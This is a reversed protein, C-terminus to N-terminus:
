ADVARASAASYGAQTHSTSGLYKVKMEDGTLLDSGHAAFEVSVSILDGVEIVPVTLHARPMNFEVGPATFDDSGMADGDSGVAGSVGMYLRADFVNTVLDTAAALDLYFQVTSAVNVCPM